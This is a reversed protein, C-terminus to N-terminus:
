IDCSGTMEANQILLVGSVIGLTQEQGIRSLQWGHERQLIKAEEIDEKM